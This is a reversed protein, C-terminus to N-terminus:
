WFWDVRKILEKKKKILRERNSVYNTRRQREADHHFILIEINYVHFDRTLDRLATVNFIVVIIPWLYHIFKPNCFLTTLSHVLNQKIFIELQPKLKYFWKLTKLYHKFYNQVVITYQSKFISTVSYSTKIQKFHNHLYM